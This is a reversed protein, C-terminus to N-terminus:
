QNLLSRLDISVNTDDAFNNANQVSTQFGEDGQDSSQSHAQNVQDAPNCNAFDIDPTVAINQGTQVATSIFADQNSDQTNQQDVNDNAAECDEEDFLIDADVEVNTSPQVTTAVLEQNNDAVDQQAFAKAPISSPMAYAALVLVSLITGIKFVHKSSFKNNM